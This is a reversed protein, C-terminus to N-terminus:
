WMWCDGTLFHGPIIVALDNPDSSMPSLPRSKLIAETEETVTTLDEYTLRADFMTRYLLDKVSKGRGEM